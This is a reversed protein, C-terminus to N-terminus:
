NTKLIRGTYIGSDEGQIYIRYLYLASSVKTNNMNTGDWSLLHFGQSFQENDAIKKILKGNVDLIEASVKCQNASKPINFAISTNNNMPNPIPTGVMMTGLDFDGGYQSYVIKFSRKGDEAYYQSTTAMDVKNLTELDILFLQGQSLGENNWALSVPNNKDHSNLNFEWIHQASPATIDQNYNNYFRDTKNFDIELYKEFRPPNALDFKDLGVEASQHMGVAGRAKLENQSAFLNLKWDFPTEQKRQSSGTNISATLEIDENVLVFGGGYVPLTSSNTYGGEGYVYLAGVDTGAIIAEWDLAIPYPNGIQNWGQKLNWVFQGGAQGEAKYKFLNGQGFTIEPAEQTTTFWYAKGEQFNTLSVTNQYDGTATNYSFIRFNELSYAVGLQQEMFNQIDVNEVKYPLSFMRYDATTKGQGIFETPLPSYMNGVPLDRYVYYIESSDVNGSMDSAIVQFKAGFEDYDSAAISLQYTNTSTNLSIEQPSTFSNSTVSAKRFEVKDIEWDDIGLDFIREEGNSVVNQTFNDATIEPADNDIYQTINIQFLQATSLGTNDTTEIYAYYVSDSNYSLSVEEKFKLQYLGSSPNIIEFSNNDYISDNKSEDPILAYTHTDEENEDVTSLDGVIRGNSNEEINESLTNNSLDIETPALPANPDVVSLTFERQFIKTENSSHNSDELRLTFTFNNNDPNGTDFTIPSDGAVLNFVQGNPDYTVAFVDSGAGVPVTLLYGESSYVTALTSSLEDDGIFIRSIKENAEKPGFEPTSLSLVLSDPTDNIDLVNISFDQGSSKGGADTARVYLSLPNPLSNDEFNLAGNLGIVGGTVIEFYSNNLTDPLSLSYTDGADPDEVSVEGITANASNEEVDFSSLSIASPAENEDKIYINIVSQVTEGGSDQSEVRISYTSKSEFDFGDTAQVIEGTSPNITFSANDEDGTGAVLSYSFTDNEDVDVTSVTGVVTNQAQNESISDNDITLSDPADNADTVNIVIEKVFNAGKPDTTRLRISLENVTEFDFVKASKLLPPNTSDDITFDSNNEGGTGDVLAYNFNTDDADPDVTSIEGVVTASDANEAITSSSLVIDTPTLNFDTIGITFNDQFTAGAADQTQITITYESQVSNDYTANTLLESNNIAFAGGADDVLSYIFTDGSDQDETTIDAIKDGISANEGIKDSSLSIGTPADNADAVNITFAKTYTLGHPDVVGLRISLEKKSEFDFGGSTRLTNGSISFLNNNASGTGSVLGYTFDSNDDADANSITAVNTLSNIDENVTNASISINTPKLNLKYLFNSNQFTGSAVHAMFYLSGNISTLKRPYTSYEELVKEVNLENLATKAADDNTIEEAILYGSQTKTSLVNLEFGNQESNFVVYNGSSTSGFEPEFAFGQPDYSPFRDFALKSKEALNYYFLSGEARSGDNVEFHIGLYKEGFVKASNAPYRTILKEGKNLFSRETDFIVTQYEDGDLNTITVFDDSPQLINTVDDSFASNEVIENLSYPKPNGSSFDVFYVDKKSAKTPDINDSSWFGFQKDGLKFFKFGFSEVDKIEEKNGSTNAAIIKGSESFLILNQAYAFTSDPTQAFNNLKQPEGPQINYLVCNKSDTDWLSMWAIGKSNVEIKFNEVVRNESIVKPAERIDSAHALRKIGESKVVFYFSSEVAYIDFLELDFPTVVSGEVMDFIASEKFDGAGNYFNVLAFRNYTAAFKAIQHGYDDFEKYEETEVNYYGMIGNSYTYFGKEFNVMDSIPLDKSPTAEDFYLRSIKDKDNNDVFGGELQAQTIFPFVFLIILLINRM